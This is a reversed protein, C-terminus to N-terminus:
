LLVVKKQNILKSVASFCAPTDLGLCYGDIIYGHLPIRELLFKPFIDKGFDCFDNPISTIIQPDILYVGANVYHSIISQGGEVFQIVRDHSDLVAKGGAIDTHVHRRDDFFAITILNHNTFHAEIFSSLNFNFLNDGYIILSHSEKEWHPAVNALAGATGLINKEYIFNLTLHSVEASFNKIENRMLEHQYHLNIWVSNILPCQGLWRLNRFIIPTGAIPILPKSLGKSFTAIRLSKGAALLLTNVSFM